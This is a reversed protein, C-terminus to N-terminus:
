PKCRGCPQYGQSLLDSRTATVDSRNHQAIDAVGPCDPSHFRHSRTNLVYPREQVAETGQSPDDEAAGLAAAADGFTQREDLTAEPAAASDDGDAGDAWNAGTAYDIAVGPQVNYCYVNFCIGRGDDDVSRAEMRVGRAVLDGERFDPTVRMLVRGGTADIHNAVATEFPLMGQTNLYRTGTILNRPNANEAGLMWAILHCRNYLSGGDIFDYRSSQWGTPRVDSIPEREEGDAPMTQWGVCALAETCRGFPDLPGYDEFCATDAAALEEETFSPQNGDLQVYPQGSYPPVADSGVFTQAPLRFVAGAGDAVCGGLALSAALLLALLGGLPAFRGSPRQRRKPNPSALSEM